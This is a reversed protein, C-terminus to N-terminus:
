HAPHAPIGRNWWSSITQGAAVLELEHLEMSAYEPIEDLRGQMLCTECVLHDDIPYLDASSRKCIDCGNM